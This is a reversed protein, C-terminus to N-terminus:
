HVATWSVAISYAAWAMEASLALAALPIWVSQFRDWALGVALVIVVGVQGFVGLAGGINV